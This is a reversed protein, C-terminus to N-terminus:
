GELGQHRIRQGCIYDSNLFKNLELILFSVVPDQTKTKAQKPPNGKNRTKKRNLQTSLPYRNINKKLQMTQCVPLFPYHAPKKEYVTTM